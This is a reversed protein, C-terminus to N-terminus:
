EDDVIIILREGPEAVRYHDRVFYDIGDESVLSDLEGELYGKQKNLDGLESAYVSQVKRAQLYKSGMTVTGRVLVFSAVLLLGIVTVRRIIKLKAPATEM